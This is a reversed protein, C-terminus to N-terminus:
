NWGKRNSKQAHLWDVENVNCWSSPVMSSFFANEIAGEIDLFAGFAIIMHNLAEEIRGVLNHMATECSKNRQHYAHQSEHLSFGLMRSAKNIISDVHSTFNLKSDSTRSSWTKGASFAAFIAIKLSIILL